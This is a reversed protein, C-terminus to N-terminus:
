CNKDRFEGTYDYVGTSDLSYSTFMYYNNIGAALSVAQGDVTGNFTFEPVVAPPTVPYNKKCGTMASVAFLVISILQIKYSRGLLQLGYVTFRLSKKIM